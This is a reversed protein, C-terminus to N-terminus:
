RWAEWQIMTRLPGAFLPRVADSRWRDEVVPALAKTTALPDDDLYIVTIYQPDGQTSPHLNWTNTSGYM